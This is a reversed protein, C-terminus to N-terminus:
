IPKKSGPSLATEPFLNPSPIYYYMEIVDQQM